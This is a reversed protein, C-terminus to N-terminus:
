FKSQKNPYRISDSEEKGLLCVHTDETGFKSRELHEQGQDPANFERKIYTFSPCAAIPLLHVTPCVSSTWDTEVFDDGDIWISGPDTSPMNQRARYNSRHPPSSVPVDQKLPEAFTALLARLDLGKLVVEAAYFKKHRSVKVSGPVLGPVIVEQDRQHMDAKFQDVMAKVGVFPTIGDVWSARSDDIYAHSIFLRAVSLRYKVTALHRGFKPSVTRLPYYTGQRIPLSLTGDFLAWWSWFHAFGKPTLHFSSPTPKDGQTSSALSISM